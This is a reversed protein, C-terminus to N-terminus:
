EKPEQHTEDEAVYRSSVHLHHMRECARSFSPLRQGTLCCRWHSGNIATVCLRVLRAQIEAPSAASDARSDPVMVQPTSLESALRRREKVEDKDKPGSKLHQHQNLLLRDGSFPSSFLNLLLTYMCVFRTIYECGISGQVRVTKNASPLRRRDCGVSPQKMPLGRMGQDASRHAM